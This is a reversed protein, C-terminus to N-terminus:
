PECNLQVEASCHDTGLGGRAEDHGGQGILADNGTGGILLDDGEGGVLVYRPVQAFPSTRVSPTGLAERVRTRDPPASLVDDGDGGYVQEVDAFVNDSEGATGDDAVGNLSVHVSKPAPSVRSVLHRLYLITDWGDGGGAWDAGPGGILIDDGDGGDLVDDGGEVPNSFYPSDLGIGDGNLIDNGDQGQLDDDGSGGLLVDGGPGGVLVTDTFAGSFDVIDSGAGAYVEIRGFGHCIVASGTSQCGAGPTFSGLENHFVQIGFPGETTARFHDTDSTGTIYLVGNTVHINSTDATAPSAMTATLATGAVLAASAGALTRRILSSRHTTTDM